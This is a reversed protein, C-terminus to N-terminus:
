FSILNILVPLFYRIIQFPLHIYHMSIKSGNAKAAQLCLLLQFINEIQNEMFIRVALRHPFFVSSRKHLIGPGKARIKADREAPLHIFVAEM